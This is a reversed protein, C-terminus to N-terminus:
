SHLSLHLATGSGSQSHPTKRTVSPLHRRCCSHGLRGSVKQTSPMSCLTILRPSSSAAEFSVVVVAAGILVRGSVVVDKALKVNVMVRAFTSKACSSSSSRFPSSALTVSATESISPMGDHLTPAASRDPSPRLRVERTVIEACLPSILEAWCLMRASAVARDSATRAFTLLMELRGVVPSTVASYESADGFCSCAAALAETVTPGGGVVVPVELVVEVKVPVVDERVVVVKVVDVVTVVVINVGRSMVVYRGAPLLLAVARGQNKM